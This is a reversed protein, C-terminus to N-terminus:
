QKWVRNRWDTLSEVGMYTDPPLWHLQYHNRVRLNGIDRQERDVAGIAVLEDIYRTAKFDHKIGLAAGIAKMSPFATNEGARLHLQIFAYARVAQASIPSLIVWAPVQAYQIHGRGTSLTAPDTETTAPNSDQTNM